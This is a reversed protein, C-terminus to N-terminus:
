RLTKFNKLSKSMKVNDINVFGNHIWYRSFEQGTYAESQAIENLHHPFVLDIGGAHIDLVYDTHYTMTSLFHSSM